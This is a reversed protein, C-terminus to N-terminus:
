LDEWVPTHSNGLPSRRMQQYAHRGLDRSAPDPSELLAAAVMDIITRLRREENRHDALTPSPNPPADALTHPAMMM